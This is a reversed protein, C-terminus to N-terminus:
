KIDYSICWDKIWIIFFLWHCQTVKQFWHIMIVFILYRWFILRLSCFSSKRDFELINFVNTVHQIHVDIIDITSEWIQKLFTKFYCKSLVSWFHKLINELYRCVNYWVTKIAIYFICECFTKCFNKLLYWWFM